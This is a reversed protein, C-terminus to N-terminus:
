MKEFRRSAGLDRYLIALSSVKSFNQRLVAARLATTNCPTVIHQLTSCHTVTHQLTNYHTAHLFLAPIQQGNDAASPLQGWHLVASHLYPLVYHKWIIKLFTVLRVLFRSILKLILVPYYYTSIMFGMLVRTCSNSFCSFLKLFLRMIVQSTRDM